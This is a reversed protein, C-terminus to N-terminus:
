VVVTFVGLKDPCINLSNRVEEDDDEDEESKDENKVHNVVGVESESDTPDTTASSQKVVKRSRGSKKGRKLGTDSEDSSNPNLLCHSVNETSDDFSRSSESIERIREKKQMTLKGSTVDFKESTVDFKESTHEPVFNEVIEIEPTVISGNQPTDVDDVALKSIVPINHRPTAPTSNQSATASGSGDAEDKSHSFSESSGWSKAMLEGLKHKKGKKKRGSRRLLKDMIFPLGSELSSRSQRQDTSVWLSTEKQERVVLEDVGDTRGSLKM